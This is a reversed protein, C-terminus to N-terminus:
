PTRTGSTGETGPELRYFWMGRLAGGREQYREYGLAKLIRGVRQAHGPAIDGPKLGLAHTLTEAASLPRESEPRTDLWQGIIPTWADETRRAAQEETLRDWQLKGEPWWKAGKDYLHKAEAFLQDRDRRLATIDVKRILVPWIRRNGSADVLYGSQDINVTFLFCGWRKRTVPWKEYKPVYVDEVATIFAKVRELDSRRVAALEGVGILWHSSAVQMADRGHFSALDPAYFEGGLARAIQDKGVGQEESELCLAHDCQCGPNLARAVMGTLFMNGIDCIIELNEAGGYRQLWSDIRHIGDWNLANLWDSLPDIQHRAGVVALARDLPREKAPIGFVQFYVQLAATGTSTWPGAEGWAGDRVAVLQGRRKDWVIGGRTEPCLDLAEVLTREDGPIKDRRGKLAAIWDDVARGGRM